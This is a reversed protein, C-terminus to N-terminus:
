EAANKIEKINVSFSGLEEYESVDIMVRSWEVAACYEDDSIRQERLLYDGFDEGTPMGESHIGDKKVVNIITQIIIKWDGLFTINKIYKLDYEFKDEWLICNRGNVQALGSLGPLVSQRKM